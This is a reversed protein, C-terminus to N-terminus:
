YFFDKEVRKLRKKLLKKGRFINVKVTGIPINLEDAIEEYEYEQLYRLRLAERYKPILSNIEKKLRICLDKDILEKEPNYLNKILKRYDLFDKRKDLPGEKVKKNRFYDIFTNTAIKFLWTKFKSNNRKDKKYTDFSKYLKTFTDQTIEEAMERNWCLYISYNFIAEKYKKYFFEFAGNKYDTQKALLVIEEDTKDELGM